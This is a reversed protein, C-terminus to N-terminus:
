GNVISTPAKLSKQKELWEKPTSGTANKFVRYLQSTSAFGCELAIIDNSYEEHELVLTRAEELRVNSLWVRFNCGYRMNLYTSIDQKNVGIRRSFSLLSMDSDKFGKEAKWHEIARDLQHMQEDRLPMVAKEEKETTNNTQDNLIEAVQNINFGLAVFSVVYFSLVILVIPAFFMLIRTSFIVIFFLLCFSYLLTSGLRMNREFVEAPNGADSDIQTRIAILEKAPLYVLISSFVFNTLGAVTLYTGIHLSRHVFYGVGIIALIIAYGVISIIIFKARHRNGCVINTQAMCTLVASPAYFIINVLAGVDDGMARFGFKMQLAYHTALLTLSAFLIWRSKEYMENRRQTFLRSAALVFALIAMVLLSAFQM